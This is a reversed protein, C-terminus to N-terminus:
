PRRREHSLVAIEDLMGAEKKDIYQRYAANQQEELKEIIKRDKSTKILHQRKKAVQVQQKQLETRRREVQAKVLDIRQNFLVLRDVTTGQKQERQLGYYLAALEEEVRVLAEQLRAEVELARFLQKQAADELQRRYNLVAHMTFPKM